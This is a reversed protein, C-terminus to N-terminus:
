KMVVAFPSPKVNCTTATSKSNSAHETIQETKTTVQSQKLRKIVLKQSKVKRQLVEVETQLDLYSSELANTHLILFIDEVIDEANIILKHYDWTVLKEILKRLEEKEKPTADTSLTISEVSSVETKLKDVEAMSSSLEIKLKDVETMSSSLKIQLRHMENNKQAMHLDYVEQNQKIQLKYSQVVFTKELELCQIKYQLDRVVEDM